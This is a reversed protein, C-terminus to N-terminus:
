LNEGELLTKSKELLAQKENPLQDELVLQLLANLCDGLRPGPTFGLEMLDQGNIALDKIHLCACEAVVEDLVASVKNLDANAPDRDIGKGGHDAKQLAIMSRLTEEGYQSLRRKLLKKDTNLLLMHNEVLLCVQERLATPAKLRRLVQDAIVTSHQAHEYFHGRGTEDQTFVEPKGTDHLLAAWRM